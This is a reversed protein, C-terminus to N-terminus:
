FRYEVECALCSKCTCMANLIVSQHVHIATHILDLNRSAGGNTNAHGSNPLSVTLDMQGSAGSLEHYAM